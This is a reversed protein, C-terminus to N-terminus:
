SNCVVTQPRDDVEVCKTDYDLLIPLSGRALTGLEEFEKSLHQGAMLDVHSLQLYIEETSSPLSLRSNATEITSQPYIFRTPNRLFANKSLLMVARSGSEHLNLLLKLNPQEAMMFHFIQRDSLLLKERKKTPKKKKSPTLKGFHAECYLAPLTSYKELITFIKKRGEEQEQEQEKYNCFVFLM